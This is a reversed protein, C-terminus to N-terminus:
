MGREIICKRKGLKVEMKCSFNSQNGSSEIRYHLFMIWCFVFVFVFFFFFLLKM